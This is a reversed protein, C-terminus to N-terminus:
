RRHVGDVGDQDPLRGDGTELLLLPARAVLEAQKELRPGDDVPSAHLLAHHPREVELLLLPLKTTSPILESTKLFKSRQTSPCSSLSLHRVIRHCRSLVLGGGVCGYPLEITLHKIFGDCVRLRACRLM